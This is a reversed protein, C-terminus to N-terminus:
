EPLDLRQIQEPTLRQYLSLGKFRLAAARYCEDGIRDREKEGPSLAYLYAEVMGDYFYKRNNKSHIGVWDKPDDSMVLLRQFYTDELLDLVEQETRM